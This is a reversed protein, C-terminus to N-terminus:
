HVPIRYVSAVDHASIWLEGSGVSASGSGQGPGIRAVVKGSHPDLQAVLEDSGRFWVWGDGITLDGGEVGASDIQICAVLRNMNPDIHCAAGDIQAMVWVAGDGVDFFRPGLAVHITAVVTGNTPDLRLVQDSGYYTVWVGGLGARVASADSPVTFRQVIKMTRPDIEVIQCASCQGGDSIAWVGGEGTGISSEGDSPVSVAVHGTVRDTGPNIRSVGRHECTATLISGFGADMAACPGQPVSVSGIRRGSRADFVGIGMGFGGSDLGKIWARGYAVLTWDADQTAGIHEGGAAAPTQMKPLEPQALSV